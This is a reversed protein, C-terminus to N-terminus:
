AGLAEKAEDRGAHEVILRQATQEEEKPRNLIAYGEIVGERFSYYGVSSEEPAGLRICDRPDFNGCIQIFMGFLVSFFYAPAAFPQPDGAMGAGAATGQHMATSWHEFRMPRGYIRDHYLAIDGAAWVGPVSTRLHDDTVVAGANGTRLGAEAAFVTQLEIGVGVVAVGCGIARGGDTQVRELSNGGEFASPRDGNIFEVGRSSYVDHLHRGFDAPLIQDLLAEGPFLMTVRKGTEVISAAAEAGVFGGGIVAVRDADNVVAKIREADDRNRLTFVGPTGWGPLDLARANGGTALLLKGYGIKAGSALAVVKEGTDLGVVKEGTLLEIGKEEYFSEQELFIQDPAIQGTLLAKSLPPRNYPRYPEAGVIALPSDGDRERIAKAAHHGALGAGVIVYEYHERM